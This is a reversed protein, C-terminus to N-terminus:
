ASGRTVYRTERDTEIGCLFVLAADELAQLSRCVTMEALETEDVIEEVSLGPDNDIADFVLQQSLSLKRM